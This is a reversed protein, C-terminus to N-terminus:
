YWRRFQNLYDFSENQKPETGPIYYELINPRGKYSAPRGTYPSIWMEKLGKPKEFQEIKLNKHIDKMIQNWIPAAGDVGSVNRMVSRDNNGVWVGVTYQPTYGVTWNDAFSDTTGTKAAVPRNGLQLDSNLGFVQTRSQNDSLINTMIFAIREDIAKSKLKPQIYITTNSSDTIKNIVTASPRQGLNSFTSYSRTLDLLKLEASGLGISLGYDREEDISNIGLEKATKIVKEVGVLKTMEVAPVNLSNQLSTRLTVNGRYYGDYNKPVYPPIGGFNVYGDYLISSATYGEKLGTAYVIPKFSSGPQRNSLAVNVKSEEYDVGGVLGELDGTKNNIVVVAANTVNRHKMNEIQKQAEKEAIEQLVPDLTTEVVLGGKNYADVGVKEKVQQKVYDVYYPYKLLQNVGTHNFFLDRSSAEEAEQQTIMNAQHMQSLVYQQRSKAAEFDGSIPSLRTPAVPLGALMSTEALDLEDVSKGYYNFSANKIGLSQEGFYVNNLYMELIEDKTFKKELEFAYVVEKIKREFSREHTLYINKVLQQTISSGGQSYSEEDFLDFMKQIGSQESKKINSYAARILGKPDIAGHHYFNIDESALIADIVLEPTEELTLPDPEATGFSEYIKDGNKDLFVNKTTNNRPSLEDFDNAINIYLGIGLVLIMFASTVAAWLLSKLIVIGLFRFRNLPTDLKNRKSKLLNKHRKGRKKHWFKKSNLQSYRM